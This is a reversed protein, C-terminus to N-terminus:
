LEAAHRLRKYLEDDAATRTYEVERAGISRMVSDVKKGLQTEKTYQVELNDNASVEVRVRAPGDIHITM